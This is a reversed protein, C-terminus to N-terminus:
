LEVAFSMGAALMAGAGAIATVLEAQKARVSGRLRTARARLWSLSQPEGCRRRWGALARELQEQEAVSALVEVRGGGQERPGLRVLYLEGTDCVWAARHLPGEASERWWLGVDQERSRARRSDAAYFSHLSGYRTTPTTRRRRETQRM